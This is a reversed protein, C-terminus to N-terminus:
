SQEPIYDDIAYDQHYKKLYPLEITLTAQNSLFLFFVLIDKALILLVVM